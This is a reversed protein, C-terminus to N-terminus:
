FVSAVPELEKRWAPESEPPEGENAWAVFEMCRTAPLETGFSGDELDHFGALRLVRDGLSDPMAVMTNALLGLSVWWPNMRGILFSLLGRNRWAPEVALGTCEVYTPHFILRYLGIRSGPGRWIVEVAVEGDEAEDMDTEVITATSSAFLANLDMRQAFAAATGEGYLADLGM